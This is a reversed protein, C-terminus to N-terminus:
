DKLLFRIIKIKLLLFDIGKKIKKILFFLQMALSSPTGRCLGIFFPNRGFRLGKIHKTAPALNSSAVKPNHPCNLWNKKGKRGGKKTNL